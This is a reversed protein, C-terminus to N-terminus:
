YFFIPIQLIFFSNHKNNMQMNDKIPHELLSIIISGIVIAETINHFASIVVAILLIIILTDKFQNLLMHYWKKTDTKPLENYGYKKRAERVQTNTLGTM